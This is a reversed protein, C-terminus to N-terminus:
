WNTLTRKLTVAKLKLIRFVGAEQVRHHLALVPFHHFHCVWSNLWPCIPKSPDIWPLSVFFHKAYRILMGYNLVLWHIKRDSPLVRGVSAMALHVWLTWCSKALTIMSVLPPSPCISLATILCLELWKSVVVSIPKVVPLPFTSAHQSINWEKPPLKPRNKPKLMVVVM